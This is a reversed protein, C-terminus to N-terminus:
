VVLAASLDMLQGVRVTNGSLATQFITVRRVCLRTSSRGSPVPRGLNSFAVSAGGRRRQLRHEM